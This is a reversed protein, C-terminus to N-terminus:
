PQAVMRYTKVYQHGGETYSMTLTNSTMDTSVSINSMTAAHGAVLVYSGTQAAGGVPAPCENNAADCGPCASSLGLLAALAMWRAAM